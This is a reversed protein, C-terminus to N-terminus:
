QQASPSLSPVTFVVGKAKVECKYCGSKLYFEFCAADYAIFASFHM